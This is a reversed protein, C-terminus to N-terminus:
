PAIEAGALAPITANATRARHALWEIIPVGIATPIFWVVPLGNVSVVVIATWLAIYAGGQGRIYRPLWGPRRRRAATLARLAFAYSGAAVLMFWWLNAFDLISLVVASVCVLLVSAHYASAFLTVRAAAARYLVAPGLVVGAVGAAIHIILAVAYTM